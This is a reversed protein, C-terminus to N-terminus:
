FGWMIGVTLLTAASDDLKFRDLEGRLTLSQNLKFDVGVGLSIDSGSDAASYNDFYGQTQWTFLGIKATLDTSDSVPLFGVASFNLGRLTIHPRSYHDSNSMSMSMDMSAVYALELGFGPIFKYGGFLKAAGGSGDCDFDPDATDCLDSDSFGLSAGLYPQAMVLSLGTCFIVMALYIQKM